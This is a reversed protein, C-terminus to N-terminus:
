NGEGTLFNCADSKPGDQTLFLLHNDEPALTERLAGFDSVDVMSLRLPNSSTAEHVMNPLGFSSVIHSAGTLLIAGQTNTSAQSVVESFHVDRVVQTRAMRAAENESLTYCHGINAHDYWFKEPIRLRHNIGDSSTASRFRLKDNFRSHRSHPRFQRKSRRCCPSVRTDAIRLYRPKCLEPRNGVAAM